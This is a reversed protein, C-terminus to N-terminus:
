EAAGFVVTLELEEVGRVVKLVVSGGAEIGDLVAHLDDPSGLARGGAEVLLDGETVGAGAAPSDDAVARVLLGDREPLGVARRLHRAVGAPALAVGLRPRVKSEGRGLADVRERLEADAPLALYFGEGLRHTNVGVLRGEADLVPGGSAGRPLPATHELSGQIRRGRPGRFSRDAASVMGFTVRLGRGGPNAAAFVITGPEPASDAWPIPAAGGTDVALAALDGDPDVGQLAARAVRGDAFTVRVDDGHVNHANTLVVGDAVVVGSGMARGGGVGVVAAGVADRVRRTSAALAGLVDGGDAIGADSGRGKDSGAV